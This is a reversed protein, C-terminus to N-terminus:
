PFSYSSRPFSFAVKTSVLEGAKAAVNANANAAVFNASNAVRAFILVRWLGAFCPGLLMIKLRADYYFAASRDGGLDM